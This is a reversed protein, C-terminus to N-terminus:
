PSAPPSTQTVANPSPPLRGYYWATGIISLVSILIGILASLIWNRVTLQSNRIEAKLEAVIRAEVDRLDTKKATEAFSMKFAENVLLAISRAHEDSLGDRKLQGVMQLLHLNDQTLISDSM